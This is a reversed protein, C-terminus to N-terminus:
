ENSYVYAGGHYYIDLEETPIYKLIKFRYKEVVEHHLANVYVILIKRSNIELSKIINQLVKDLIFADFPNFFYLCDADSPIEYKGADTNIIEFNVKGGKQVSYRNMNNKATLALKPAFEVGIVKKFGLETAYVLSIGKGCGFDIYTSNQIQWDLKDFMKKFFVPNSAEYKTAHQKVQDPGDMEHTEVLDWFDYGRFKLRQLYRRPILLISNLLGRGKLSRSIKSVFNRFINM